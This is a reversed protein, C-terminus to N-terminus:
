LPPMVYDWPELGNLFRSDPTFVKTLKLTDGGRVEIYKETYRDLKRAFVILFYKGSPIDSFLVEGKENSVLQYESMAYEGGIKVLNLMADKYGLCIADQDYLRVEAGVGTVSIWYVTDSEIIIEPYTVTLKLYGYPPVVENDCQSSTLLITVCLVTFTFLRM